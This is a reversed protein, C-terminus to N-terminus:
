RGTHLRRLPPRHLHHNRFDDSFAHRARPSRANGLPMHRSLRRRSSWARRGSPCSGQPLLRLRIRARPRDPSRPVGSISRTQRAALSRARGICPRAKRPHPHHTRRRGSHGQAPRHGRHSRALRRRPRACRSLEGHCRCSQRCSPRRHSLPCFPRPLVVHHPLCLHLHLHNYFFFPAARRSANPARPPESRPCDDPSM